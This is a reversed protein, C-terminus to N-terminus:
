RISCALCPGKPRCGYIFSYTKVPIFGDIFTPRKKGHSAKKAQRVVGIGVRFPNGEGSTRFSAKKEEEEKDNKRREVPLIMLM